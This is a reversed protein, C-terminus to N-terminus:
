VIVEGAFSLGGHDLAEVAVAGACYWYGIIATFYSREVTNGPHEAQKVAASFLAHGNGSILAMVGLIVM